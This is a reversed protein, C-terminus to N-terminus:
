YKEFENNLNMIIKYKEYNEVLTIKLKKFEYYKKIRGDINDWKIEM